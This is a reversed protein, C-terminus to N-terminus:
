EVIHTKSKADDVKNLWKDLSKRSISASLEEGTERHTLCIALFDGETASDVYIQTIRYNPM